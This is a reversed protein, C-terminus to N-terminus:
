AIALRKLDALEDATVETKKINAELEKEERERERERALQKLLRVGPLRKKVREPRIVVPEDEDEEYGAGTM